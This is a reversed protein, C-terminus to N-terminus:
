SFYVKETLVLIPAGKFEVWLFRKVFSNSKVCAEPLTSLIRRLFRAYYDDGSVLPDGIVRARLFGKPDGKSGSPSM